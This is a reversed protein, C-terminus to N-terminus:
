VRDNETGSYDEEVVYGRSESSECSPHDGLVSAVCEIEITSVNEQALGWSGLDERREEMHRASPVDNNDSIGSSSVSSVDAVSDNSKEGWNACHGERKEEGAWLTRNDESDIGQGHRRFSEAKEEWLGGGEDENNEASAAGGKGDAAATTATTSGSPSVIEPNGRQKERGGDGDEGLGRLLGRKIAELKKAQARHDADIQERLTDALVEAARRTPKGHMMMDDRQIQTAGNNVTSRGNKRSQSETETQAGDIRSGRNWDAVAQRFAAHEAEEGIAPYENRIATAMVPRKETTTATPRARPRRPTSSAEPEEGEEQSQPLSCLCSM